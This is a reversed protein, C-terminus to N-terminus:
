FTYIRMFGDAGFTERYGKIIREEAEEWVRAVGVLCGSMKKKKKKKKM